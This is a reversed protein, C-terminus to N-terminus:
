RFVNIDFRANFIDGVEIGNVLTAAAPVIDGALGYRQAADLKAKVELQPEEVVLEVHLDVVGDVSLASKIEATKDCAWIPDFVRIM